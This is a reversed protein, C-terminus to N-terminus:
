ATRFRVRSAPQPDPEAEVTEVVPKKCIGDNITLGLGVISAFVVLQSHFGGFVVFFMVSNALFCALLLTNAKQLYEPGYRYNLWLARTSAGLFWLWGILGWIGFPILISLPGNHYDGAMMAVDESHALGRSVLDSTLELDIGSIGLGKPAFLYKPVEPILLQWMRIRWESSGEAEYRAVPNLKLPLVTLSRQLSLPLKDALPILAVLSLVLVGLFIAAYKTRFLGEFYFVFLFTMGLLVLASRFGGLMSVVFVIALLVFRWVKAGSLMDRVGYRALLYFFLGFCASTLGLYRAIGEGFPTRTALSGMDNTTVPFIAALWYFERPLLPIVNSMLNALGGLFFLGVYLLAKDRPIPRAIIAFFAGVAAFIYLYRKAGFQESGFVRSGFGGTYHGTLFVVATLYLLPWIVSPAHVFRMDRDLARQALALTLSIAAMAFWLPLSGPLFFVVVTTNLVLLLMATHWKFLIPVSMLGLVLAIPAWSAMDLGGSSTALLYGFVLAMPIVLAYVFLARLANPANTMRCVLDADHRLNSRLVAEIAVV